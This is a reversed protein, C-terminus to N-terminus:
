GSNIIMFTDFFFDPFSPPFGSLDFNNNKLRYQTVIDKANKPLLSLSIDSLANLRNKKRFRNVFDVVQKSFYYLCYNEFINYFTSLVYVDSYFITLSGLMLSDTSHCRWKHSYSIGDKDFILPCFLSLERVMSPIACFTATDGQFVVSVGSNPIPSEKYPHLVLLFQLILLLKRSIHGTPLLRLKRLYSLYERKGEFYSFFNKFRNNFYYSDINSPDLCRSRYSLPTLSECIPFLGTQSPILFVYCPETCSFFCFDSITVYFGNCEAYIVPLFQALLYDSETGHKTLGLRNKRKHLEIRLYAKFDSEFLNYIHDSYKVSGITFQNESVIDLSEFYKIRNKHYYNHEHSFTEAWECVRKFYYNWFTIMLHFRNQSYFDLNKLFPDDGCEKIKSDSQCDSEIELL